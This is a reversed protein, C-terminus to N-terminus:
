GHAQRFADYAAKVEVPTWDLIRNPYRKKRGFGVLWNKADTEQSRAWGLLNRGSTPPNDDAPLDDEDGHEEAVPDAAARKAPPAPPPTAPSRAAPRKVPPPPDAAPNPGAAPQDTRLRALEENMATECFSYYGRIRAVAATPDSLVSQDIELELGCTAGISGYGETGEKKCVEIRLRISM